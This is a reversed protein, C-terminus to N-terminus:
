AMRKRSTLREKTARALPALADDPFPHVSSVNIECLVYSDEGAATKPGYLFDADWLLPLSERNLSVAECLADVWEREMRTRIHQFRDLTPPFYIRPGPQPADKPSGGPPEPFLANIEQFGFGVVEGGVMYCRIMGDKLREQYPQDIIRGDGEFYSDCQALFDDLAVDQRVSGRLAHRVRVLGSNSPHREVKWVGNGGNGRYQKLVRPNGEEQRRPLQERLDQATAYLHTDCGWSMHRTQFLVEKTGMKLITDPHASVFVGHGAADRLLADLVSRDRGKEIPNVWVLAGDVRSLQERVEEALEDSYIALEAEVGMEGLAQAVGALRHDVLSAADRTERDGPSVLAVKLLTESM